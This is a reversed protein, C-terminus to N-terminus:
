FQLKPIKLPKFDLDPYKKPNELNGVLVGIMEVNLTGGPPVKGRKLFKVLKILTQADVDAM